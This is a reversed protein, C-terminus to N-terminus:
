VERCYCKSILVILHNLVKLIHCQLDKLFHLNGYLLYSEKPFMYLDPKFRSNNIKMVFVLLDEKFNKMIMYFLVNVLHNLLLCSIKGFKSMVTMILHTVFIEMNFRLIMYVVKLPYIKLKILIILLTFVLQLYKNM